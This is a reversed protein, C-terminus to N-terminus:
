HKSDSNRNILSETDCVALSNSLLARRDTTRSTFKEINVSRSSIAGVKVKATLSMTNPEHSTNNVVCREAANNYLHKYVTKRDHMLVNYVVTFDPTGFDQGM